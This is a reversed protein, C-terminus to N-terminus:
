PPGAGRRYGFSGRETCALALDSCRPFRIIRIAPKPLTKRGGTQGTDPSQAFLDPGAKPHPKMKAGHRSFSRRHRGDSRAPNHQDLTGSLMLGFVPHFGHPLLCDPDHDGAHHHPGHAHQRERHGSLVGRSGEPGGERAPTRKPGHRRSVRGAPEGSIPAHRPTYTRTGDRVYRRRRLYDSSRIGPITEGVLAPM